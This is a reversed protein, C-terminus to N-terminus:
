ARFRAHLLVSLPALTLMVPLLPLRLVAIAVFCAAVVALSLMRRRLPLLMKIAVACLLGAAAAALGGVVHTVYPNDQYSGYIVALALVILTPMAILGTIGAIAGPMGRFRMGVAASMNIINGGPLFQCLGLLDTFEAQTLWRRQEVMMHHALPLVGGFGILGLHLFGLFIEGVSPPPREAESSATVDTM